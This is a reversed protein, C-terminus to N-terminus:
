SRPIDITLHTLGYDGPLNDTSPATRSLKFRVVDGAVWDLTAVTETFAFTDRDDQTTDCAFDGSVVSTYATDWSESDAVASHDFTWEINATDATVAYGETTITVTGVASINDPVVFIGEVFEPTTDDFLHRFIIGNTLVDVDLPAANAVPYNFEGAAYSLPDSGGGAGAGGVLVWSGIVADYVLLVYKWINDLVIDADDLLINGMAHKVVVTRGSSAARIMLVRGTTEGNITHLEDSPDDSETDVLHLSRVVTIEGSVITLEIPGAFTLSRLVSMDQTGMNIAGAMTGGALPLMLDAYAKTAADTGVTPTGLGTIKSTGMAIAGSMTGGALPLFTGLVSNGAGLVIWKALATDYVIEYAQDTADITIDQAKPCLINGTDHKIIVTRATNAARLVIRRSNTAVITDLEDSPDDSQTDVTHLGQTPTISGAAITLETATKFLHNFLATMENLDANHHAGAHQEPTASDRDTTDDFVESVGPNRPTTLPVNATTSSYDAM